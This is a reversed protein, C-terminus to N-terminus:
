ALALWPINKIWDEHKVPVINLLKNGNDSVQFESVNENLYRYIDAVSKASFEGFIPELQNEFEDPSVPIYNIEKGLEESLFKSIEAGKIPENGLEIKQGILNKNKFAAATFRAMDFLSVWSIVNDEAIPYPFVGHETIASVSWPAAINDIYIRPRLYVVPLCSKELMKEATLKIDFAAIGTPKNPVLISSNFVIMKPSSLLAAEIFNSTYLKMLETDFNLPLVFYIGDVEAMANQLSAVNSFDGEHIKVNVAKVKEKDTTFVEVNYGKQQLEEIVATGQMGNAGTVLINKM